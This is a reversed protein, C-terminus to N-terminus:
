CKIEQARIPETGHCIFPNMESKIWITQLPQRQEGEFSLLIRDKLKYKIGAGFPLIVTGLSYNGPQIDGEYSQGQGFFLGYGLGFFGFPSFRSTSKHSMYDIFHFEMRASVEAM